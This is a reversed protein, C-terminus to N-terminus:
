VNRLYESPDLPKRKEISDLIWLKDVVSAGMSKYVSILDQDYGSYVIHTVEPELQDMYCIGIIGCIESLVTQIHEEENCYVIYQPSGNLYLNKYSNTPQTRESSYTKLTKQNNEKIEEYIRRQQDTSEIDIRRSAQGNKKGNSSSYSKPTSELHKKIPTGNPKLTLQTSQASPYFGCSELSVQKNPKAKHEETERDSKLTIYFIKLEGGNTTTIDFTLNSIPDPTNTQFKKLYKQQLNKPIKGESIFKSSTSSSIFYTCETNVYISIENITTLDFSLVTTSSGEPSTWFQLPNTNQINSIPSIGNPSHSEIIYDISQM